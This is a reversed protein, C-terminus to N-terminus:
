PTYFDPIRNLTGVHNSQYHLDIAFIFPEATGGTITPITTADFHMLVIGDPEILATDLLTASGGDTSLQVEDTRHRYQPTNTINLSPVTITVNKESAFNAQAHGKAYSSYLNLVFSGSINTGNHGWHVHVFLDTGPAWDHPIHFVIDGDDGATYHYWRTQTRWTGLTPAGVGSTKPIIDGILDKWPLSDDAVYMNGTMVLDAVSLAGGPDIEDATHTHGDQSSGEATAQAVVVAAEADTLRTDLGEFVDDLEDLELESGKDEYPRM